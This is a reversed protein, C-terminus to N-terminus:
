DTVAKHWAAYGGGGLAVAQINAMAENAAESLRTDPHVPRRLPRQGNSTRMLEAIAHPIDMPDSSGGGGFFARAGVIHPEYAAAREEDLRDILAETYRSGNEWIKTPYGGPQIITVEVGSPALEYALSEFMAEVAFKTSCYMGINPIILRGLQSSIQVVLGKERARMGPLAARAMRHCGHVNVDFIMDTAAEDSMEVPGAIAIGANNVLVDVGGGAIEEAAAVGAVVQANDTVDIEVVHLALNEESAIDTLEVAEPRQGNQLNRMSAIVTAGERALHLASLRGFGSSCGTILVSQGTLAAGGEQASASSATASAAALAAAGGLIQRRSPKIPTDSM